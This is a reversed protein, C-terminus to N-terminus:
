DAYEAELYAEVTAVREPDYTWYGQWRNDEDRRALLAASREPADPQRHVVFWSRRLEECDELRLDGGFQGELGGGPVGYVAVDLGADVLLDYVARTGREDDLRDISQFGAHIRGAGARFATSEIHRSLEILLLKGKSTDPYGRVTFPVEDLGALAAPTDVAELDRAGTVYIDSNVLLLADRLRGFPSVGIPEGGESLLVADTPAAEVSAEEVEVAQEDFLNHLMRQLPEPETRNLVTLTKERDPVSAVFSDISM